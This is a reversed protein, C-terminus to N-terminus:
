EDPQRRKRDVRRKACKLAMEVFPSRIERGKIRRQNIGLMVPPRKRRRHQDQATRQSKAGRAVVVAFRIVPSKEEIRRGASDALWSAAITAFCFKRQDELVNVPVEEIQRKHKQNRQPAISKASEYPVPVQARSHAREDQQNVRRQQCGVREGAMRAAVHDAPVQIAIRARLEASRAEAKPPADSREILM